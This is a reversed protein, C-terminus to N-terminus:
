VRTQRDGAHEHIRDLRHAPVRLLVAAWDRELCNRSRTTTPTAFGASSNQSPAASMESGRTTYRTSWRGASIDTINMMRSNKWGNMIANPPKLWSLPSMALRPSRYRSRLVLRSLMTIDRSSPVRSKEASSDNNVTAM